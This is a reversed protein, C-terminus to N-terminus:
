PEVRNGSLNVNKYREGAKMLEGTVVKYHDLGVIGGKLAGTVLNGTLTVPGAGAAISVGIGVDAKRIINGTAAIDRTYSGTGLFLGYAADEIVNGTLASDAEVAIAIGHGEGNPDYAPRGRVNRVLNGSVVALRGGENFNTVSIGTTAGDVLNNAIVAGQFGFEVYLATEGSRLAQNGTITVDSASNARIASLACDALKNDAVIVGDARFLNIGNGNAGTGGSRAAIREIRNGLIRSGDPGLASRHVLIGGDGCDSVSNESILLGLSDRAFIGYAGCVSIRCRAIRGGSRDIAIGAAPASNITLDELSVERVGDIRIGAGEIAFGSLRLTDGGKVVLVAEEGSGILRTAPGVGEIAANTSLTVAGIRYLGAGLQLPRGEKQARDLAAQFASTV